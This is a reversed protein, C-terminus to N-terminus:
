NVDELIYYNQNSRNRDKEDVWGNSEATGFLAIDIDGVLSDLYNNDDFRVVHNGKGDYNFQIIEIKEWGLANGRQDADPNLKLKITM